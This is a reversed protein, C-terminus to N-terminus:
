GKKQKQNWQEGADRDPEDAAMNGRGRGEM